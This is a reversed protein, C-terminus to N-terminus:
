VCGENKEEMAAAEEEGEEGGCSWSSVARMEVSLRASEGATSGLGLTSFRGDDELDTSPLELFLFIILLYAVEGDEQEVCLPIRTAFLGRM